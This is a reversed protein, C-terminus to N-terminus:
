IEDVADFKPNRRVSGLVVADGAGGKEVLRVPSSAVFHPGM